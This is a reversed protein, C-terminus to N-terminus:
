GNFLMYAEEDDSVLKYQELMIKIDDISNFMMVDIISLNGVFDHNFQTYIIEETKLFRLQIGKSDFFNSTYLEMGGIANIYQQAGLRKCIDIIKDQGRLVNSKKVESSLILSTEVKLYDCVEKISYALFLAVSKEDYKLIKEVLPFVENFFPAKKYSTEITKLLKDINSENNQLLEVENIRKNQSVKSLKLHIQKPQKNVLINNRNIWGGKIFNVDDFIVFKDVVNILQWYGIYPFLYPQMIALKLIDGELGSM